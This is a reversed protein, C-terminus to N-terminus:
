RVYKRGDRIYVGHHSTGKIRHGQLDYVASPRPVSDQRLTPVSVTFGAWEKRTWFWDCIREVNEGVTRYGIGWRASDYRRSRDIGKATETELFEGAWDAMADFVDSPYSLTFWLNPLSAVPTGSGRPPAPERLYCHTVGLFPTIKAAVVDLADSPM